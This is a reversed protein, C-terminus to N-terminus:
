SDNLSEELLPDSVQDRVQTSVQYRVSKHIM